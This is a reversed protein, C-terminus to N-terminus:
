TSAYTAGDGTYKVVFLTFGPTSCTIGAYYVNGNQDFTLVPDSTCQFVHLPSSLGQSSNDGPFGPVLSVTWTLGDDTSRYFGHWRHGGVSLLRYDQAGAVIVSPNRPDVAITPEVQQREATDNSATIDVNAGITAVARAPLISMSAVILVLVVTILIRM